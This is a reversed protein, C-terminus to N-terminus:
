TLADSETQATGHRNKLAPDFRSQRKRLADCSVSEAPILAPLPEAESFGAKQEFFSAFGASKLWASTEPASESM